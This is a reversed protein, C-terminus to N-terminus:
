EQSRQAMVRAWSGCNKPIFYKMPFVNNIAGLNPANRLYALVCMM